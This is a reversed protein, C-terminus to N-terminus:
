LAHRVPVPARLLARVESPNQALSTAVNADILGENALAALSQDFTHTGLDALHKGLQARIDLFAGADMLLDAFGPSNLFLETNLVRGGNNAAVLRHALIGRVTKAIRLRIASQNVTAVGSVLHRLTDTVDHADVKAIVLSGAEAAHLLSELQHPDVRDLAIVETRHGIAAELASEISDTDVGLERQTITCKKDRLLFRTKAEILVVHRRRESTENMHSLLAALSTSRGSRPGGSLLILGSPAELARAFAAPIRLEAMTPIVHPVVRLMVMYTSRQKMVSVRFRGIGPASWTLTLDRLRELPPQEGPATDRLLGVFQLVEETSFIHTGVGVLDGEVRARLVDGARVHIDTAGAHVADRLAADIVTVPENPLLNPGQTHDAM